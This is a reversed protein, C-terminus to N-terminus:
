AVNFDILRKQRDVKAVVVQITQGLEFKRRTKRGLFATGSGNLIYFDDRLSSVPVLGFAGADSLEIFFGHSRIETIVAKFATKRKREAERDFFEM